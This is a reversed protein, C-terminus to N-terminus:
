PTCCWEHLLFRARDLELLASERTPFSDKAMAVVNGDGDGLQWTWEGDAKEFVQVSADLHTGKNYWRAAQIRQASYRNLDANTAFSRNIPKGSDAHGPLGALYEKTITVLHPMPARANQAATVVFDSGGCIDSGGFGPYGEFQTPCDTRPKDLGFQEFVGAISPSSADRMTLSVSLPEIPPVLMDQVFRLISTNQYQTSDIGQRLWPSILIAPIRPGHLTFDFQSTTGYNNFESFVPAPSGLPATAPPPMEHDYIGGNEDFNVILLTDEWLQSGRLKNYVAALYNEGPELQAAPHMSTDDAGAASWCMLFSYFPLDGSDIDDCFQTIPVNANPNGQMYSNLWSSDVQGGPTYMKWTKGFEEVQQFITKNTVTSGDNDDIGVDGTTACHMFARNPLTHGPMDCFWNDCLVFADALPHLVQLSGYKFFSMVSPGNPPYGPVNFATTSLFGSNSSPYTTAPAGIPAGAMYGTTGPGFLDPMMGDGFDHNFDHYLGTQGDLDIPTPYVAPNEPSSSEETPSPTNYYYQNVTGDPLLIGNVGPFGGFLHDFSRNEFMLVVIHKISQLATNM